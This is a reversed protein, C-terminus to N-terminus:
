LCIRQITVYGHGTNAGATNNQNTGNNYSGGGGGARRAATGGSASGGSYGGGGGAGYSGNRAGGGGFGALYLGSQGSAGIGGNFFSLGAGTTNTGSGNTLLGGGAGGSTTDRNGGNGNDARTIGPLTGGSTEIRGNREANVINNAGDSGGGGAIILPTSGDVVFSGGGGALATEPKHGVLISLTTGATLNFDGEVVSGETGSGSTSSAANEGGGQAGAVEIKYTGTIPVTWEQIGQTSITVNGELNTNSYSSNCQAQSPGFRGTKGCNTFNWIAQVCDGCGISRWGGNAFYVEICDTDLNFIQLGIAPSNIDNRQNTTMRPPLFGKETSEVELIASDDPQTTGIGVQALVPSCVLILLLTTKIFSNRM